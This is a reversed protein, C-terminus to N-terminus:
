LVCLLVQHTKLEEKLKFIEGCKFCSGDRAEKKNGKKTLTQEEAPTMEVNEKRSEGFVLESADERMYECIKRHTNGVHVLVHEPSNSKYNCFPCVKAAVGQGFYKDQLKFLHIVSLTKIAQALIM